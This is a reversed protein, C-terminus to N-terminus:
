AAVGLRKCQIRYEERLMVCLDDYATLKNPAFHGVLPRCQEALPFIVDRTVALHGREREPDGFGDLTRLNHLRDALKIVVVRLDKAM